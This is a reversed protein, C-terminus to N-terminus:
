KKEICGMVFEFHLWVQVMARRTVEPDGGKARNFRQWTCWATCMPSGVLFVPKQEKIMRRAKELKGYGNFDLREGDGPDRAGSGRQQEDARHSKEM